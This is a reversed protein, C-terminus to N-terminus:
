ESVHALCSNINKDISQIKNYTVPLLNESCSTRKFIKYKFIKTFISIVYVSNLIKCLVCKKKYIFKSALIRRKPFQLTLYPLFLFYLYLKSSQLTSTHLTLTSLCLYYSLLYTYISISFSFQSFYLNFLIGLYSKLSYFDM